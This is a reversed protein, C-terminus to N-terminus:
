DDGATSRRDLCRNVVQPLGIGVLFFLGMWLWTPAGTHEDVVFAVPFAFLVCLAIVLNERSVVGHTRVSAEHVQRRSV